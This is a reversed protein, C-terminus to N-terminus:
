DEAGMSRAPSIVAGLPEGMALCSKEGVIVVTGLLGSLLVLSVAADDDFVVSVYEEGDIAFVRTTAM